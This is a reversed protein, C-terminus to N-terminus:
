LEDSRWLSAVYYPNEGAKFIIRNGSKEDARVDALGAAIESANLHKSALAKIVACIRAQDTTNLPYTQNLIEETGDYGIVRWAMGGFGEVIASM